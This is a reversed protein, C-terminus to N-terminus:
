ALKLELSDPLGLAKRYVSVYERASASWGFDEAIARGVLSSWAKKNRFAKKARGFAAVLDDAAKDRFVYGNRGEFVTDSLGGTVRVIPITGYRMAIMQGLGCPEFLSPMTFLDSGAYIRQALDPDFREIFRIHDPFQRELRRLEAAVAPDGLGQVVLQVPMVFLRPAADILLQLGKQSSLRTVAGALPAGAIPKMGIERFLAERCVAKGALNDPSYTQSLYRDTKPDFFATDIGNLIGTLCKESALHAMLGELRCGFEPTQIEKAYTPSVTTVQDSYACGSKLFNVTGWTELYDPVFRSRPIALADLIEVGFEGQYALNHITYISAVEDFQSAGRERMLVPVFGTHWDNCHVVQPSWGALAPLELLAASFFLYQEIGPTYVTDSSTAGKFFTKHGVFYVTVGDICTKKITALELWHGNLQIPVKEAVTELEWRPDEEIMAYLPMAIRIDHGLQHIAKPLSGAVDALGGVKAFPSVEASVFLIKLILGKSLFAGGEKKALLSAARSHFSAAQPTETLENM